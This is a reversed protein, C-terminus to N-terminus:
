ITFTPIRGGRMWLCSQRSCIIEVEELMGGTLQVGSVADEKMRVVTTKKSLGANILPTIAFCILLSIVICTIGLVMRNKFIKM